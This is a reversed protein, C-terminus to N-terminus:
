LYLKDLSTAADMLRKTQRETLCSELFAEGYHSKLAEWKMSMEKLDHAVGEMELIFDDLLKRAEKKTIKEAMVIEEITM